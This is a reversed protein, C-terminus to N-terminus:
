QADFNAWTPKVRASSWSTRSRPTRQVFTQGPPTAVSKAMPRPRVGSIGSSAPIIRGSSTASTTSNTSVRGRLWRTRSVANRGTVSGDHPHLPPDEGRGVDVPEDDRRRVFRGLDIEDADGAAVLRAGLLVRAFPLDRAGVARVLRQERVVLDLGDVDRQRVVEMTFPRDAGDLGALVHEALLRHPLACGLDLLREVGGLACLPDERLREHVPVARLGLAHPLEEVLTRDPLEADYAGAEAERDEVGLVDPKAGVDLAAAQHVDAAVADAARPQKGALRLQDEPLLQDARAAGVPDEGARHTEGVVDEPEEVAARRQRRAVLEFRDAAFARQEEVIRPVPPRRHD